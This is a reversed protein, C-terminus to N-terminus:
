YYMYVLLLLWVQQVFTGGHITCNAHTDPHYGQGAGGMVPVYVSKRVQAAQLRDADDEHELKASMIQRDTQIHTQM